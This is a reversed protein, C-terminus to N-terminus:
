ILARWAPVVKRAEVMLVTVLKKNEEKTPAIKNWSGRVRVQSIPVERRQAPTNNREM